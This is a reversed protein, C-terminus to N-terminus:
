RWPNAASPSPRPKPLPFSCPRSGLYYSVGEAVGVVRLTRGSVTVQEGVGLGLESDVVVEGPGAPVRGDQVAPSGLGVLRYGILNVDRLAGVRVASHFIVLPDARMVGPVRAVREAAAAPIV